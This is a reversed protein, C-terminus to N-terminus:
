VPTLDELLRWWAPLVAPVSYTTEVTRHLEQREHRTFVLRTPGQALQCLQGPARL